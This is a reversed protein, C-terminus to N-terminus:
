KGSRKFKKVITSKIPISSTSSWMGKLTELISNTKSWDCSIAIAKLICYIINLTLINQQIIVLLIADISFM